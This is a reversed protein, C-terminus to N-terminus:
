GVKTLTTPSPPTGTANSGCSGSMQRVDASLRLECSEPIGFLNINMTVTGENVSGSGTGIQEENANYLSLALVNGTQTVQVFVGLDDRWLGTLDVNRTQSRRSSTSAPTSTTSSDTDVPPDVNTVVNSQATRQEASTPATSQYSLYMGVAHFTGGIFVFIWGAVFALIKQGWNSQGEVSAGGLNIKFIHTLVATLILLGGIAFCLWEVTQKM